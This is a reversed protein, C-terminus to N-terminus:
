KTRAAPVDAADKKTTVTPVDITEKRTGVVVQNAHVDVAPLQGGQVSVAPLTGEQTVHASFVGTAFLVVAVLAALIVLLVLVGGLGRGRVVAPRGDNTRYDEM